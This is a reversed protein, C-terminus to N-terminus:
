TQVIGPPLRELFTFSASLVIHRITVRATNILGTDIHKQFQVPLVSSKTKQFSIRCRSSTRSHKRLDSLPCNPCTHRKTILEIHLVLFHAEDLFRSQTTSVSWGAIASMINASMNGQNEGTYRICKGGDSKPDHSAVELLAIRDGPRWSSSWRGNGPSYNWGEDKMRLRCKVSDFPFCCLWDSPFARVTATPHM